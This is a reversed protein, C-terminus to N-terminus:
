LDAGSTFGQGSPIDITAFKLRSMTVMEGGAAIVQEAIGSRAYAEEATGGFPYDM